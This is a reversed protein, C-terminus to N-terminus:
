RRGPSTAPYAHQAYTTQSTYSRSMPNNASGDGGPNVVYGPQPQQQQLVIHEPRVLNGQSPYRLQAPGMGAFPTPVGGTVGRPKPANGGTPSLSQNAASNLPRLEVDPQTNQQQPSGKAYQPNYKGQYNPSDRNQLPFFFLKM